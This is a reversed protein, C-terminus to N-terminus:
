TQQATHAWQSNPSYGSNSFIAFYRRNKMMKGFFSSRPALNVKDTDINIIRKSTIDKSESLFDRYMLLVTIM